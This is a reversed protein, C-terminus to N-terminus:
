GLRWRVGLRWEGWGGSVKAEVGGGVEVGGGAEGELCLAGSQLAQPAKGALPQVAM